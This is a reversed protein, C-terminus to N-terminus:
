SASLDQVRSAIISVPTLRKVANDLRANLVVAIFFLYIVFRCLPGRYFPLYAPILAKSIVKFKYNCYVKWIEKKQCTIKLLASFLSFLGAEFSGCSSEIGVYVVSLVMLSNITSQKRLNKPSM